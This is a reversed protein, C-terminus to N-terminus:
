APSGAGVSGRGQLSRGAGPSRAGRVAPGSGGDLLPSGRRENGSQAAESVGPLLLRPGRAGPRHRDGDGRGDEPGAAEGDRQLAEPDGGAGRARIDALASRVGPGGGHQRAGGEVERLRERVRGPHDRGLPDRSSHGPAPGPVRGHRGPDRDPGDSRADHLDRPHRQDAPLPLVPLEPVAQVHVSRGHDTPGARAWLGSLM